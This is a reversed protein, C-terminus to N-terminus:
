SKIVYNTVQFPPMNEHAGGGGQSGTSTSNQTTAIGAGSQPVFNTNAGGIPVSHTHAPM